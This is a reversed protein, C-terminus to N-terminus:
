RPVPSAPRRTVFSCDRIVSSDSLAVISIGDGAAPTTFCILILTPSLTELPEGIRTSSSFPLPSAAGSASFRLRCLGFLRLAALAAAAAVMVTGTGSMPSKLSTSTMSTRTLGPSVTDFSCDSMVSSDSLAVISIGDGDAPTTFSILTLTPSLTELPDGIRTSSDFSAGAALRLGFRM